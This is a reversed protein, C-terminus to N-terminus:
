IHKLDCDTKVESSMSIMRAIPPGRHHSECARHPRFQEAECPATGDSRFQTVQNRGIDIRLQRMAASFLRSDPNRQIM